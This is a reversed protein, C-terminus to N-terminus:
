LINEISWHNKHQVIKQGQLKLLRVLEQNIVYIKYRYHAKTEVVLPKVKKPANKNPQQIVKKNKRHKECWYVVAYDTTRFLIRMRLLMGSFHQRTIPEGFENFGDSSACLEPKVKIYM